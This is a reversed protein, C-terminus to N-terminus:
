GVVHEEVIWDAYVRDYHEELQSYIESCVTTFDRLRERSLVGDANSNNYALTLSGPYGKVESSNDLFEILKKVSFPKQSFQTWLSFEHDDYEDVIPYRLEGDERTARISILDQTTSRLKVRAIETESPNCDPLYEGGLFSPHIAGFRNRQDETLSPSRLHRM